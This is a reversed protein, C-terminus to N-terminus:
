WFFFGKLLQGNKVFNYFAGKFLMLKAGSICTQAVAMNRDRTHRFFRLTPVYIKSHRKYSNGYCDTLKIKYNM